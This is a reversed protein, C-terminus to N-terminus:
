LLLHGLDDWWLRLSRMRYLAPRILMAGSPSQSSPKRGLFWTRFTLAPITPDDELHITHTLIDDKNAPHHIVEDVTTEPDYSPLLGGDTRSIPLKKEPPIDKQSVNPSSVSNIDAAGANEEFVGHTAGKESM